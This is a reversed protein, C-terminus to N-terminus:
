SPVSPRLHLVSPRWLGWISGCTGFLVLSDEYIGFGLQIVDLTLMIVDPGELALTMTSPFSGGPDLGALTDRSFTRRGEHHWGRTDRQGQNPDCCGDTPSEAGHLDSSIMEGYTCKWRAHDQLLLLYARWPNM